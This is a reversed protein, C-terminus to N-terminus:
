KGENGIGSMGKMRGRVRGAEKGPEEDNRENRKREKGCNGFRGCVDPELSEKWRGCKGGSTSEKVNRGYRGCVPHGL